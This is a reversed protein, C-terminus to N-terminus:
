PGWPGPGYPGPGYPGPGDPGPGDPGPGLLRELDDREGTYKDLGCEEIGCMEEGSNAQRHADANRMAAEWVEQGRQRLNKRNANDLIDRARRRQDVGRAHASAKDWVPTKWADSRKPPSRSQFRQEYSSPPAGEFRTPDYTNNQPPTLMRGEPVLAVEFAGRNCFQAISRTDWMLPRADLSVSSRRGVVDFDEGQLLQAFRVADEENEFTLIHSVNSGNVQQELTYIGEKPTGKNFIVVYAETRYRLVQDAPGHVLQEAGNRNRMERSLSEEDDENWSDSMRPPGNGRTTHKSAKFVPKRMAAGAVALACVAFSAAYTVSQDSADEESMDTVFYPVPEAFQLPMGLPMRNGALPVQDMEAGLQLPREVAFPQSLPPVFFRASAGVLLALGIM